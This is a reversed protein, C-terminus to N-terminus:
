GLAAACAVAPAQRAAAPWRTPSGPKRRGPRSPQERVRSESRPRVFTDPERGSKDSEPSQRHGPLHRVARIEQRNRRTTAGLTSSLPWRSPRPTWSAQETTDPTHNPGSLYEGALREILRWGEGPPFEELGTARAIAKNITAAAPAPLLRTGFVTELGVDGKHLPEGNPDM